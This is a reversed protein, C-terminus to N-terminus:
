KYDSQAVLIGLLIQQTTKVFPSTIHAIIACLTFSTFWGGREDMLDWEQDFNLITNIFFHSPFEVVEWKKITLWFEQITTTKGDLKKPCPYNKGDLNKQCNYNPLKKTYYWNQIKTLFTVVAFNLHSYYNKCLDESM